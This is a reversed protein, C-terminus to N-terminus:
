EAWWINGCEPCELEWERYILSGKDRKRGTQKGEVLKGTNLRCVPCMVYTPWFAGGGSVTEIEEPELEIRNESLFQMREEKTKCAMVKDKQDKTLDRLKM